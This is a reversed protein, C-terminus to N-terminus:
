RWSAARKIRFGPALKGVSGSFLDSSGIGSAKRMARKNHKPKAITNAHLRYQNQRPIRCTEARM